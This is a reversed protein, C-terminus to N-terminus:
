KGQLPSLCDTGDVGIIKTVNSTKKGDVGDLVFQGNYCDFFTVSLTGYPILEDSPTPQTFSGPIGYVMDLEFPVGYVLDELEVPFSALWRTGDDASYGFYYIIWGAITQYILYGEGDLAPDSWPGSFDYPTGTTKYSVELVPRNGAITNERSDFRKTSRNTEDGILIWGFNQAPQDLWLQVDAVMGPSSGFSYDGIVGVLDGASSDGVFDGGLNTWNFNPWFKQAWTADDTTSNAGAGENDLADSTGEGWDSILRFLQVFEPNSSERSVHMHLKVSSITAGEPITGLNKFAIVARRRVQENTLGVFMHEGAGNSLRGTPSEYLTNDQTASLYVTEAFLPSCFGLLLTACLTIRKMHIM